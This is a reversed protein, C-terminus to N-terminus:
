KKGNEHKKRGLRVKRQITYKDELDLRYVDFVSIFDRKHQKLMNYFPYTKNKLYDRMKHVRESLSLLGFNSKQRNLQTFVIEDNSSSYKLCKTDLGCLLRYILM